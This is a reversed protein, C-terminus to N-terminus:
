RRFTLKLRGSGTAEPPNYVGLRLRPGVVSRLSKGTRTPRVKLTMGAGNRRCTVKLRSRKKLKVPTGAIKATYKRGVRTYTAAVQTAARRCRAAASVAGQAQRNVEAALHLCASLLLTALPQDEDDVFSVSSMEEDEFGLAVLYVSLCTLLRKGPTPQLSLVVQMKKFLDEDASDAPAIDVKVATMTPSLPPSGITSSGGPPVTTEISSPLNAQAAPVLVLAAILAVGIAHIRIVRDEPNGQGV